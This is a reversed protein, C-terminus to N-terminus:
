AVGMLEALEKTRRLVEASPATGCAFLPIEGQPGLRACLGELMDRAARPSFVDGTELLGVRPTELSGAALGLLAPVEEAVFRRPLLVGPLPLSEGVAFTGCQEVAGAFHRGLQFACECLAEGQGADALELYFRFLAGVEDRWRRVRQAGARLWRAQPVLVAPFENAYYALRWGAPLDDPYYVGNWAACEWGRAGFLLRPRRAQSSSQIM